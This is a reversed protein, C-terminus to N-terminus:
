LKLPQTTAKSVIEDVFNRFEPNLRSKILIWAARQGPSSFIANLGERIGIWYQDKLTGIEHQVYANEVRRLHSLLHFRFRAKEIRDLTEFDDGGRLVLSCLEGDRALEDLQGVLSSVLQQFTAARVARTNNRIQIAVYIFSAIVGVGGIAAGTQALEQLTM